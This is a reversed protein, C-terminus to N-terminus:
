SVLTAGGTEIAEIEEETFPIRRFRAPLENRDFYVGKPAKVDGLQHGSSGGIGPDSDSSRFSKRLPGHQQAQDRYSSFSSQASTSSATSSGFGEPLSHTPSAPHPRASHDVSAPAANAVVLLAISLYLLAYM